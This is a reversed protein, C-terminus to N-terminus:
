EQNFLLSNHSHYAIKKDHDDLKIITEALTLVDTLLEKSISPYIETIYFFINSKYHQKKDISKFWKIVEKTNEWRNLHPLNRINVNIKDLISKSIRGLENEAQNM